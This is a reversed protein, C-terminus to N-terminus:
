AQSGVIHWTGDSTILITDVPGIPMQTLGAPVTLFNVGGDFSISFVVGTSVFINLHSVARSFDFPQATFAGGSIHQNAAM